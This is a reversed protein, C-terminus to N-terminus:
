SVRLSPDARKDALELDSGYGRGTTWGVREGPAVTAPGM